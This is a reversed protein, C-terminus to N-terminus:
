SMTCRTLFLQVKKKVNRTWNRLTSLTMLGIDWVLSAVDNHREATLTGAVHAYEPKPIVWSGRSVWLWFRLSRPTYPPWLFGDLISPRGPFWAAKRRKLARVHVLVGIGCRM